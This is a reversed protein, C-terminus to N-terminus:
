YALTIRERKHSGNDLVNLVGIAFDEVSIRSEGSVDVLLDDHGVRHHGKLEGAVITAAPSIYTWDLEKVRRWLELAERHALALARHEPPFEPTALLEIGPEVNLSGAGGVVLVRSIHTRMCSAALARTVDVLMGPPAGRPGVASVVADHGALVRELEEERTADATAPVARSSSSSPAESRSIATVGHSRRLAENVISRGLTGTGGVVAIKM